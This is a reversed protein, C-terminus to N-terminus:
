RPTEARTLYGRAPTREGGIGILSLLTQYVSRAQTLEQPSGNESRGVPEFSDGSPKFRHVESSDSGRAYLLLQGTNADYSAMIGGDGGPLPFDRLHGGDQYGWAAGQRVQAVVDEKENAQLESSGALVYGLIAVKAINKKDM